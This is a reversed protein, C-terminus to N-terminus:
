RRTRPLAGTLGTTDRTRPRWTATRQWAIRGTDRDVAIVDFRHELGADAGGGARGPGAPATGKGTPVATTLFLHRGAVVPTSHGKGPIALKWRVNTTDDWERPADGVAMGTNFPGRWQPWAAPSVANLVVSGLWTVVLIAVRM